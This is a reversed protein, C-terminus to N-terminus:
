PSRHPSTHSGIATGFSDAPQGGGPHEVRCCQKTIGLEMCCAFLCSAMKEQAITSSTAAISSAGIAVTALTPQSEGLEPYKALMLFRDQMEDLLRDAAVLNEQAIYDWIADLDIVAELTRLLRPSVM